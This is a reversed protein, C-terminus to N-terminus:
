KAQEAETDFKENILRTAKRGGNTALLFARHLDPNSRSVLLTAAQRDLNQNAKMRERVAVDMDHIPDGTAGVYGDEEVTSQKGLPEVGPKKAAASAQELQQKHAAETEVQQKQLQELRQELVTAWATQAQQITAGKELQSVIFSDDAKPLTQKIEQLTAATIPNEQTSMGVGKRRRAPSSNSLNNIVQDITQIADVLGLGIAESAPHIRGDAISKVNEIALNRGRAVGNLFEENLANVIRQVEALQAETIETGPVGAGKYEGARVVHVKVGLKEAVKSQDYLVAYTGISGVLATTNNAFVKHAQSAVWMAASATLDEVFAYVPKRKAAEAVDAALDATGAVTGGPSDIALLISGVGDDAVAQRLQRRAFVTSAGDSMSSVYKMMPGRLSIVAVGDGAVTYLRKEDSVAAAPEGAQSVSSGAEARAWRPDLHHISGRHSELHAHLNLGQVRDVAQRFRTEEIAWLGFFDDIVSAPVGDLNRVNHQIISSLDFNSTKAM